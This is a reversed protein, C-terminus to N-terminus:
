QWAFQKAVLRAIHQAEIGIERLEGTASVSQDYFFLGRQPASRSIIRPPEHNAFLKPFDPILM